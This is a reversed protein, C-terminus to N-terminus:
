RCDQDLGDRLIKLFDDVRESHRYPGDSLNWSYKTIAGTIQVGHCHVSDDMWITDSEPTLSEDRSMADHRIDRGQSTVQEGTTNYRVTVGSGM